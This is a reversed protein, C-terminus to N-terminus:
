VTPSQAKLLGRMAPNQFELAENRLCKPQQPIYLPSQVAGHDVLSAEVVFAVCGASLIKLGWTECAQNSARSAMLVDVVLM